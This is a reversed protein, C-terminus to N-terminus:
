YKSGVKMLDLLLLHIPMEGSGSATDVGFYYKKGVQPSDFLVIGKSAWQRISEPLKERVENKPIPEKTYSLRNLVKTQNFM